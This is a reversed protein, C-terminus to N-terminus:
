QKKMQGPTIGEYRKFSQIMARSDLYGTLEATEKVTKGEKLLEKAHALRTMHIEDLISHGVAARFKRSIANLSMNWRGAIASVNLSGDAYNEAIYAQVEPIWGGGGPPNDSINVQKGQEAKQFLSCVEQQMREADPAALIRRLGTDAEEESLGAYRRLLYVLDIYQSQQMQLATEGAPGGNAFLEELAAAAQPLKGSKLLNYLKQRSQFHIGQWIGEGSLDEYGIMRLPGGDASRGLNFAEQYALPADELSGWAGSVCCAVSLYLHEEMFSVAKELEERLGSDADSSQFVMAVLGDMTLSVGSRKELVLEELVNRVAYFLMDAASSFANSPVNEFFSSKELDHFFLILVRYPEGDEIYESLISIDRSHGTLLGSLMWNHIQQRRSSLQNEAMQREEILQRLKRELERTTGDSSGSESQRLLALMRKYPSFAQRSLIVSLIIGVGAFLIFELILQMRSWQPPALYIGREVLFGYYLGSCDSPITFHVYDGEALSVQGSGGPDKEFAERCLDNGFLFQGDQDRLYYYGDGDLLAFEELPYLMGICALREQYDNGLAYSLVALYAGEGGGIVAPTRAYANSALMAEFDGTELGMPQLFAELTEPEYSRGGTVLQGSRYFYAFVGACEGRAAAANLLGSLDSQMFRQKATLSYSLALEKLAADEAIMRGSEYSARVTANLDSWVADVVRQQDRMMMERVSQELKLCTFLSLLLPVMCVCLYSIFIKRYIKM